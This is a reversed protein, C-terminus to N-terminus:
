KRHYIIAFNQFTQAEIEHTCKTFKVMRTHRVLNTNQRQNQRNSYRNEKLVNNPHNQVDNERSIHKSKLISKNNSAYTLKNTLKRQDNQSPKSSSKAKSTPRAIAKSKSAPKSQTLISTRKSTLKTSNSNVKAKSEPKLIAKNKLAPKSQPKVVPGPDKKSLSKEKFVRPL